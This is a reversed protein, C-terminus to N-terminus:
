RFTCPGIQAYISRNLEFTEVINNVDTARGKTLFVVSYSNKFEDITGFRNARRNFETTTRHVRDLNQVAKLWAVL